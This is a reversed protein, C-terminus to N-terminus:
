IRLFKGLVSAVVGLGIVGLPGRNQELANVIDSPNRTIVYVAWFIGGVICVSGVMRLISSGQSRPVIRRDRYVGRDEYGERSGTGWDDKYGKPNPQAM